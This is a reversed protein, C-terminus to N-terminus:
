AIAHPSKKNEMALSAQLRLFYFFGQKAAPWLSKSQTNM